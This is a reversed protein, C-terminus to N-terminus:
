HLAYAELELMQDRESMYAVRLIDDLVDAAVTTSGSPPTCKLQMSGDSRIVEVIGDTYQAFAIGGVLMVSSLGEGQWVRGLNRNVVTAGGHHVSQILALNGSAALTYFGWEYTGQHPLCDSVSAEPRDSDKSLWHLDRNKLMVFGEIGEMGSQVCLGHWDRIRVVPCEHICRNRDVVLPNRKMKESVVEPPLKTLERSDADRVHFALEGDRYPDCRDVIFYQLDPDYGIPSSSCGFVTGHCQKIDFLFLGHVGEFDYIRAVADGSTSFRIGHPSAKDTNMWRSWLEQGALDFLRFSEGNPSWFALYRGCPSATLFRIDEYGSLVTRSLCDETVLWLVNRGPIVVQNRDGTFVGSSVNM